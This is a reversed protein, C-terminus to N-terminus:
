EAQRSREEAQSRVMETDGVSDSSRFILCNGSSDCPMCSLVGLEVLSSPGMYLVENEVEVRSGFQFIACLELASRLVEM